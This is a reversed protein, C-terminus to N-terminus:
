KAPEKRAFAPPFPPALETVGELWTRAGDRTAQDPHYAAVQEATEMQARLTRSAAVPNM